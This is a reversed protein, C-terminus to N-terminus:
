KVKFTSAVHERWPVTSILYLADARELEGKEGYKQILGEVDTAKVMRVVVM